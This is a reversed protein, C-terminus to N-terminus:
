DTWYNKNPTTGYMFYYSNTGTTVMSQYSYGTITNGGAGISTVMYFNAWTSILRGDVLGSAQPANLVTRHYGDLKDSDQVRGSPGYLPITNEVTGTSYGELKAANIGLADHIAKTHRASNYYQTHDDDGLGTLAGHDTVGGLSSKAIRIFKDQSLSYIILDDNVLGTLDLAKGLGGRAAALIASTIKSAALDPIRGVDFTESTIRSAPLGPIGALPVQGTAADLNQCKIKKGTGGSAQAIGDHEHGTAPDTLADIVYENWETSPVVYKPNRKQLPYSVM